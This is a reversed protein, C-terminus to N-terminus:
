AAEADTVAQGQLRVLHIEPTAFLRVPLTSCGVGRSVLMTRRGDALDFEGALYQRSLKDHPLLIARGRPTTVQGGHTHGCLAVDFDRRGLDLLGDPSHMLVVRVGTADALADDAVARGTTPDDLGCIWIDDHPAPLRVNENLLLRVGAERLGAAVLAQNARVDHNGLVAFKGLPARIQALWPTLRCMYAARVSVFDGGLLLVDPELAALARCAEELTRDHTTAGAHFDSAFAIRLPPADGHGRVLSLTTNRQRLRGQLGLARSTRAAWDGPRFLSDLLMELSRRSRSARRERPLRAVAVGDTM